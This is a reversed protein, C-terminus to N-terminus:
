HGAAARPASYATAVGHFSAHGLHAFPEVVFAALNGDRRLSQQVSPSRAHRFIGSSGAAIAIPRIPHPRSASIGLAADTNDYLLRTDTRKTAGGTCAGNEFLRKIRSIRM